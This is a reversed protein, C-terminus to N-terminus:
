FPPEESYIRRYLERKFDIGKLNKPMSAIVIDRAASFMKAGMMFRDEGSRAMLRQRVIEAIEPSTDNM